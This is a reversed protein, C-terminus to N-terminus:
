SLLSFSSLPTKAIHCQQNISQGESVEDTKIKYTMGHVKEIDCGAKAQCHPRGTKHEREFSLFRDLPNRKLHIIVAYPTSQLFKSVPSFVSPNRPNMEANGGGPARTLRGGDSGRKNSYSRVPM